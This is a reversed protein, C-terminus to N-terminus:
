KRKLHSFLVEAFRNKRSPYMTHDIDFARCRNKMESDIDTFSTPCDSSNKTDDQLRMQSRKDKLSVSLVQHAFLVLHLFM